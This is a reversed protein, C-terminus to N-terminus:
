DVVHYPFQVTAANGTGGTITVVAIKTGLTSTNVNGSYIFPSVGYVRSESDAFIQQPSVKQGKTYTPIESGQIVETEVDEETVDYYFVKTASEHDGSTETFKVVTLDVNPSTVITQMSVNIPEDGTYTIGADTIFQDATVTAGVPYLPITQQINVVLPKNESASIGQAHYTTGTLITVFSLMALFSYRIKTRKM